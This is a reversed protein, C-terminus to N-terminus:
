LTEGPIQSQIVPESWPGTITYNLELVKNIVNTVEGGLLLKDAAWVAFGALGGGGGATKGLLM